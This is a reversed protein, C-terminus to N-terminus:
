KNTLCESLAVGCRKRIQAAITSYTPVRRPSEGAGRMVPEEMMAAREVVAMMALAAQAEVVVVQEAAAAPAEVALAELVAAVAAVVRAAGPAEAEERGAAEQVAGLAEPHARALRDARAARLVQRDPNDLRARLNTTAAV